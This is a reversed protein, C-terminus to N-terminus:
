DYIHLHLLDLEDFTGKHNHCMCSRTAGRGLTGATSHFCLEWFCINRHQLHTHKTHPHSNLFLWLYRCFNSVTFDRHLVRCNNVRPRVKLKACHAHCCQCPIIPLLHGREEPMCKLMIKVGSNNEIHALRMESALSGFSGTRGSRVVCLGVGLVM